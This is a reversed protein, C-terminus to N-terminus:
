IVFYYYLLLLLLPIYLQSSYILGVSVKNIESWSSKKNIIINSEINLQGETFSTLRLM